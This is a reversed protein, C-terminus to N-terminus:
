KNVPKEASNNIEDNRNIYKMDNIKLDLKELIGNLKSEMCFFDTYFIRLKKEKTEISDDKEFEQFYKKDSDKLGRIFSIFYCLLLKKHKLNEVLNLEKENFDFNDSIHEDTIFQNFLGNDEKETSDTRLRRPQKSQQTEQQQQKSDQAM